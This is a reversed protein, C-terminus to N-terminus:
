YRFLEVFEPHREVAYDYATKGEKNKIEKDAGSQLMFQLTEMKRDSAFRMSYILPTDGEANVANVDFGRKEILYQIVLFSDRECAKHLLTNESESYKKYINMGNQEFFEIIEITDNRDFSAYVACSLADNGAIDDYNIDSGNEVLLKVIQFREDSLSGAANTLPCGQNRTKDWHTYNVKAGNELLLNVIEFNGSKCAAQLPTLESKEGLVESVWLNPKCNLNGFPSKMLKQVAEIDEREIAEIVRRAYLQYDQGSM